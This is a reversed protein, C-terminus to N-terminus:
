NLNTGFSLIQQVQELIQNRRVKSSGNDSSPVNSNEVPQYVEFAEFRYSHPGGHLNTRWIDKRKLRNEQPRM